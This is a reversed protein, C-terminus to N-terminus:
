GLIKAIQTLKYYDISWLNLDKVDVITVINEISGNQLM